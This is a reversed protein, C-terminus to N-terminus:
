LIQNELFYNISLRYFHKIGMSIEQSVSHVYNVRPVKKMEKKTFSPQIKREWGNVGSICVFTCM